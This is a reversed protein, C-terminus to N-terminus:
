MLSLIAACNCPQLIVIRVVVSTIFRFEKMGEESSYEETKLKLIHDADGVCQAIDGSTLDFSASDECM